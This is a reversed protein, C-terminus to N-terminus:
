GINPLGLLGPIRRQPEDNVRVVLFSKFVDQVHPVYTGFPPMELDCIWTHRPVVSSLCKPGVLRACGASTRRQTLRPPNPPPSERGSLTMDRDWAVPPCSSPCVSHGAIRKRKRSSTHHPCPRLSQNAVRWWEEPTKSPLHFAEGGRPPPPRPALHTRSARGSRSHLNAWLPYESSVSNMHATMLSPPQITECRNSYRNPHMCRLGHPAM